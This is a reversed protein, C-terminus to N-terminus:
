IEIGALTVTLRCSCMNINHCFIHVSQSWVTQGNYTHTWVYIQNSKKLNRFSRTLMPVLCYSSFLFLIIVIVNVKKANLRQLTSINCISIINFFLIWNYNQEFILLYFWYINTYIWIVCNKKQARTLVSLGAPPPIRFYFLILRFSIQHFLHWSVCNRFFSIGYFSVRHFSM